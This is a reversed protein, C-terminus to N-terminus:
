LRSKVNLARPADWMANKMRLGTEDDMGIVIRLFQNFLRQSSSQYSKQLSVRPRSRVTRDDACPFSVFSIDLLSSDISADFKSNKPAHTAPRKPVDPALLSEERM